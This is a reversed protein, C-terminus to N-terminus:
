FSVSLWIDCDSGGKWIVGTVVTEFKLEGLVCFMLTGDKTILSTGMQLYEDPLINYSELMSSLHWTWSRDFVNFTGSISLYNLIFLFRRKQLYITTNGNNDIQFVSSFTPNSLFVWRGYIKSSDLGLMLHQSPLYAFEISPHLPFLTVDFVEGSPIFGFLDNYIM